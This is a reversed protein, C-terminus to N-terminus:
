PKKQSAPFHPWVREQSFRGKNQETCALFIPIYLENSEERENAQSEDLVPLCLTRLCCSYKCQQNCNESGIRSYSNIAKALSLLIAGENVSAACYLMFHAPPTFFSAMPTTKEVRQALSAWLLSNQQSSLPTQNGQAHVPRPLKRPLPFM